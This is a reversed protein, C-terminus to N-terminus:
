RVPEIGESAPFLFRSAIRRGGLIPSPFPAPGEPDCPSVIPKVNYYYYFVYL